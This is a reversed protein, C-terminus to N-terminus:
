EAERVQGFGADESDGEAAEEYDAMEELVRDAPSEPPSYEARQNPRRGQLKEKFRTLQTEAKDLVLDIAKYLDKDNHHCVIQSGRKVSILVEARYSDAGKDLVKDLVVDIRTIGNFYRELKTVKEKAHDKQRSTVGNRGTITIPVM